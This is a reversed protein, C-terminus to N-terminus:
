HSAKKPAAHGDKKAKAPSAEHKSEPQKAEEHMAEEKHGAKDEATPAEGQGPSKEGHEGKPKKAKEEEEEDETPAPPAVYQVIISIRRNSPHVPDGKLRLQQDAFGRVQAIQNPGVGNEMLIRRASNARDASLEWNSYGTDSSFPKADTHGEVYLRNPLRALEKALRSVLDKGMESMQSKGSAFFIGKENELLEIRLGEGTVTIKVNKSLKKFEPTQKMAAELKEKLKDMDDKKLQLGEGSGAMTSGMLKGSGTPDSFYGGVAQKVTDDSSLLWLVIFLAMMATVFDAYAVKWAGGHHGGHGGKKKKVIIITPESHDSM